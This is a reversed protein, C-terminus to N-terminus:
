ELNYNQSQLLRQPSLQNPPHPPTFYYTICNLRVKQLTVQKYINSKLIGFKHFHTFVINLKINQFLHNLSSFFLLCTLKFDGVNITWITIFSIFHWPYCTQLATTVSKANFCGKWQQVNWGVIYLHWLPMALM